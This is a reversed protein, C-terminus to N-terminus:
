PQVAIRRAPACGPPAYSWRRSDPTLTWDGASPFSFWARWLWPRAADRRLPVSVAPKGPGKLELRVRSSAPLVFRKPVTTLRLEVREGVRATSAVTVTACLKAEAAPAAVLTVVAALFLRTM